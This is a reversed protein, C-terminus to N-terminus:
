KRCRSRGDILLVKPKAIESGGNLYILDSNKPLREAVM